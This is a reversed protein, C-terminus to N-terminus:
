FCRRFLFLYILRHFLIEVRGFPSAAFPSRDPDSDRDRFRSIPEPRYRLTSQTDARGGPLLVSGRCKRYIFFGHFQMTEWAHFTPISTPAPPPPSPSRKGEGRGGGGGRKRWYGALSTFYVKERLPLPPFRPPPPAFRPM